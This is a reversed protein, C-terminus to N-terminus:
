SRCVGCDPCFTETQPSIFGCSGCISMVGGLTASAIVKARGRRFEPTREFEWGASLRGGTSPHTRLLELMSGAGPEDLERADGKGILGVMLREFRRHDGLILLSARDASVESERYWALLLMRIPVTLIGTALGPSALQVGGALSEALGHYLVHKSKVHALEHAILGELSVYDLASFVESCIVLFPNADGGATFANLEKSPAIYVKPLTDLGILDACGRVLSDARSEPLVRLGYRSLWAESREGGSPVLKQILHPLPETSRIAELNSRDGASAYDGLSLSTPPPPGLRRRCGICFVRDLRTSTTCFRCIMEPIQGGM